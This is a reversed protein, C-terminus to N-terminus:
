PTRGIQIKTGFKPVFHSLPHACLLIAAAASSRLSAPRTSRQALRSNSLPTIPDHDPPPAPEPAPSSPLVNSRPCARGRRRWTHWQSQQRDFRRNADTWSTKVAAVLPRGPRHAHHRPTSPSHRAAPVHNRAAVLPVNVSLPTFTTPSSRTSTRPLRTPVYTGLARTAHPSPTPSSRRHCLDHHASDHHPSCSAALNVPVNDSLHFNYLLLPSAVIVRDTLATAGQDGEDGALVSLVLAIFLMGSHRAKTVRM